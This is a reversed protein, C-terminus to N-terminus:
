RTWPLGARRWAKTGGAVSSAAMGRARLRRTAALSRGGHSCVVAVPLGRRVAGVDDVSGPIRGGRREAETRVDLLVLRGAQLEAWAAAGDVKFADLRRSLAPAIAYLAALANAALIVYLPLTSALGSRFSLPHILAGAHDALAGIIWILAVALIARAAPRWGWLALLAAAAGAVVLLLGLAEVATTGLGLTAGVGSRADELVHPVEAAAAVLACAGAIRVGRRSIGAVGAGRGAPM